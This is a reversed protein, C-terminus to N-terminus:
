QNIEQKVDKQPHQLTSAAGKFGQAKFGQAPNSVGGLGELLATPSVLTKDRSVANDPAICM